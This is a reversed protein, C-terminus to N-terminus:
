AASTQKRSRNYLATWSALLREIDTLRNHRGLSVRLACAALEPEVGMARLVHSPEVKGSSCAAGSSVAIGDLDLAMVQTEATLGRVAFCSTNALRPAELGFIEVEPAIERLRQELRDRLKALAQYGELEAKAVAAAAGFGAIAAVNETGARRRREQGGGRLAPSLTVGEALVLAGAGQPGGLKHGSLSMLDLGLAKFDIPIKGAAQVADSHVLAGADHAAAVVRELPQLVGTENNAMQVSVLAADSLPGLSVLGDSGLALSEADERSRLVSPHEGASVLIRSRDTGTLALSNAETGGSTFVVQEPEAGVLAAVEERAREVRQRARRGFAHVSSANGTEDLVQVMLAAAEPRLPATANCDLYVAQSM